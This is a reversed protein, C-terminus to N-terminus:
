KKPPTARINWKEKSDKLGYFSDFWFGCDMCGVAPPKAQIDEFAENGCFPCPKIEIKSAQLERIEKLTLESVDFPNNKSM